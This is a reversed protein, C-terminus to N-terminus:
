ADEEEELEAIAQFAQLIGFEKLQNLVSKQCPSLDGVTAALTIEELMQLVETYSIIDYMRGSGMTFSAKEIPCGPTHGFGVCYARFIDIKEELKIM